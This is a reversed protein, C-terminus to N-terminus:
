FAKWCHAIVENKKNYARVDLVHLGGDPVTVPFKGKLRRDKVMSLKQESNVQGEEAAIDLDLVNSGSLVRFKVVANIKQKITQDTRLFNLAYSLHKNKYTISINFCQLIDSETAPKVFAEYFNLSQRLEFVEDEFKQLSETATARANEAISIRTEMEASAQRLEANEVDLRENESTKVENESKVIELEYELEKVTATLKGVEPILMKPAIHYYTVFYTAFPAIVLISVLLWVFLKSLTVTRSPTDTSDPTMIIFTYPM